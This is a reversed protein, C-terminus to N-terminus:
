NFTVVATRVATDAGPTYQQARNAPGLGVDLRLRGSATPTLRERRGNITVVVGRRGRFYPPTTINVVGSGRIVFGDRGARRLQLFELARRRDARVTWNWVRFVPEISRYDFRLPRSRPRDFVLQFRALAQRIEHDFLAVGHCGWDLPRWVHTIRLEVLRAHMTRSTPAIAGGEIVCGAAAELPTEGRAPVYAGNGTFIQLDVGRLNGALDVPNHGRWVVEDTFRPGFIALPIGGQLLPSVSVVASPLLQNTDLVGSLSAAAAFLDPHRAALMLTGFGGMSEGIIARHARDAITRFRADVLPILEKTVFTEYRPRGEATAIAWDSWYGAGGDPAVVLGDFRRTLSEGHYASRFTTQDHATGALYYAVPWRRRSQARYGVPVTVEVKAPATFSPTAIVLEVTRETLWRSSVLQVADMPRAAAADPLLFPLGPAVLSLVLALVLTSM